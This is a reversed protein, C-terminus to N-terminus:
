PASKKFYDQMVDRSGGPQHVETRPGFEQMSPKIDLVPTGDVGLVRCVTSGIRNRRVRGRQAFIGVKPWDTRGRPHRLGTVIQEPRVEHLLFLIEVHSFDGLGHLSEATFRDDDSQRVPSRVWGIPQLTIEGPM